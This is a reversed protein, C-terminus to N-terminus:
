QLDSWTALRSSARQQDIDEPWEGEFGMGDSNRVPMGNGLAKEIIEDRTVGAPIDVIFLEVLHHEVPHLGRGPTAARTQAEAGTGSFNTWFAFTM